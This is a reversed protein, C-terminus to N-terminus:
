LLLLVTVLVRHEVKAAKTAIAVGVTIKFNKTSCYYNVLHGGQDDCIVVSFALM